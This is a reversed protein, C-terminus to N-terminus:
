KWGKSDIHTRDELDGAKAAFVLVSLLRNYLDKHRTAWLATSLRFDRAFRNTTGADLM